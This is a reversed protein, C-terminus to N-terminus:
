SRLELKPIHSQGALQFSHRPAVNNYYGIRDFCLFSIVQRAGTMGFGSFIMLGSCFSMVSDSLKVFLTLM